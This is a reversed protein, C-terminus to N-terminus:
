GAAIADTLYRAWSVGNVLIREAMVERDFPDPPPPATERESTRGFSLGLTSSSERWTLLAQEALDAIQKVTRANTASRGRGYVMIEVDFTSRANGYQPDSQWNTIRVLVNPFAADDPPWDIYVRGGALTNITTGGFSYALLRAVITEIVASQSTSSM